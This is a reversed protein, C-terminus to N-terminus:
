STFFLIVMEKTRMMADRSTVQMKYLLLPDEEDRALEFEERVSRRLRDRWIEGNENYWDFEACFKIIERYLHLAEKRPPKRNTRRLKEVPKSFVKDVISSYKSM